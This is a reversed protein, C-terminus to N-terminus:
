ALISLIEARKTKVLARATKADIKGGSLKVIMESVAMYATFENQYARDFTEEYETNEPEREYDAEAHDAIEELRSLEALKVRLEDLM